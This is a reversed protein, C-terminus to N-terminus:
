EKLILDKNAGAAMEAWLTWEAALSSMKEEVLRQCDKGCAQFEQKLEATIDNKKSLIEM